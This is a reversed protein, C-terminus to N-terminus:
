TNVYYLALSLLMLLTINCVASTFAAEKELGGYDMVSSIRKARGALKFTVNLPQHPSSSVSTRLLLVLRASGNRSSAWALLHNSVSPPTCFFPPPPPKSQLPSPLRVGLGGHPRHPRWLGAMQLRSSSCPRSLFSINSLTFYCSLKFESVSNNKEMRHTMLLRASM